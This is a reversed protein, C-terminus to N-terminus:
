LSGLYDFSMKLSEIPDETHRDQEVAAYIVGAKVAAELIEVWEINGYGIEAFQRENQVIKFDKLHMVGMNQSVKNIWSLPNGGGAVVWHIDLELQVFEPNFHTLLHDLWTEGNTQEFEFRHNHYILQIGNEKLTKGVTNMREVFVDLGQPNKLEDPMIGVGIFECKWRKHIEIVWDLNEEIYPLAFHTACINLGLEQTVKEYISCVDKTVEGVGSVQVHEYGINKVKTLVARVGAEDQGQLLDRITFLQAAILPKKM